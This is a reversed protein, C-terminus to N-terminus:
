IPTLIKIESRNFTLPIFHLNKFNEAFSAEPQVAKTVFQFSVIQLLISFSIHLCKCSVGSTNSSM